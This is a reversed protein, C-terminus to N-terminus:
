MLSARDCSGSTHFEIKLEGYEQMAQHKIQRTTDKCEKGLKHHTGIESPPKGIEYYDKKQQM